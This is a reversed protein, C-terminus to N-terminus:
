RALLFPIIGTDWCGVHEDKGEYPGGPNRFVTGYNEIGWLINQYQTCIMDPEIWSKGTDAPM